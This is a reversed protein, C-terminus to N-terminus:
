PRPSRPSATSGGPSGGPDPLIKMETRFLHYRTFIVDNLRTQIVPLKALQGARITFVPVRSLAVGRVPCIYPTGGISVTGYDVAISAQQDQYPPDLDSIMTIRYVAGTSPDIALEGHYAPTTTEVGAPTPCTVQFHSQNKAVTFRFVALPGSSGRQWFGWFIKGHLADSLAVVLIPGFEGTTVLGLQPLKSAFATEWRRNALEKGDRYTVTAASEGEFRLPTFGTQESPATACVACTRGFPQRTKL